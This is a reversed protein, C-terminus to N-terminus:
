PLQELGFAQDRIKAKPWFLWNHIVFAARRNVLTRWRALSLSSPGLREYETRAEPDSLIQDRLSALSTM